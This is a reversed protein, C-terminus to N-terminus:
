AVTLRYDALLLNLHGALTEVHPSDLLSLHHGPVSVIELREGCFADWGRAPDHRDFRPDRMGATQLDRPSYFVVPGDYTAPRYREVARVDLYSTRQHRLIAENADPDILGAAVIAAIVIDTQEDDDLGAMREYPLSVPKGYAAELFAAFRQFRLEIVKAEDLGPPDPLPLITDILALLEVREGAAHLRVATEYALVGGFSWGALLYPGSPQVETLLEVYRGAREEVSLAGDFRDCGWVTLSPDLHDVLQRYVLTDGGGPHFLFLPTPAPGDRLLRLPTDATSEPERLLRAQQEITAAPGFLESVILPHGTRLSLLESARAATSQDGGLATFEQTVGFDERGLVERWVAAVIRETGDRPAVRAIRAPADSSAGSLALTDCLWAVVDTITAGRLLLSPPLTVGFDHQLANRVRVALLSDLGRATLAADEDLGTSDVGLVTAIRAKVRREIQRQADDGDLGAARSWGGGSGEAPGRATEVLGAFLPIRALEAFTDALGGVDIKLVGALPIPYALLAELAETAEVTTIAGVPHPRDGDGGGPSRASWHITSGVLGGARRSEVLADLFAAGAAAGASGPWGILAPASSFGVWWDLEFGTSAASLRTAGAATASWVRRLSEADLRVVARDDAIGAAHAVGCLRAGPMNSATVAREAVGPRSIDGAVLIVESGLRRLDALAEADEPGPARDDNLVLRAAGREALWGAILLGTRGLGGSILYAGDPRVTGAGDPAPAALEPAVMRAVHRQGRRWAVEDEGDTTGLERLLGDLRDSPDLDIWTPRLDAHEAALVRVLGRLGAAGPDARDGDAIAAAGSSVLWVRAGTPTSPRQSLAQVLRAACLVLREGRIVAGEPAEDPPAPGALLVVGDIRRDARLTQEADGDGDGGGDRDVVTAAAGRARLAGALEGALPDSQDAVILWRGSVSAPAPADVPSWARSLLKSRLSTPLTARPVRSLSIEDLTLRIRGDADTLQLAATSHDPATAATVSTRASTVEDIPGLWRALGVSRVVWADDEAPRLSGVLVDLASDLVSRTGGGEAATSAAALLVHMPADLKAAPAPSEPSMELEASLDLGASLHARWRGGAIRSHVTLRGSSRSDRVISTSLTRRDGLALPAHLALDRIQLAGPPSGFAETAASRILELWRGLGITGAVAVAGAGPAPAGPTGPAGPDGPDGPDLSLQWTLRTEDPLEVRAGLLGHAPPAARRARPELWHRRHRWRTRPLDIPRADARAPASVASGNILLAALQAHVHMTEDDSRRGTALIVADPVDCSRANDILAHLLVPHPSVEIFTRHGDAAAAAIAQSFRVPRRINTVWYAADFSPTARPDDLATSYFPTQAASPELGALGDTLAGLIPDVLRCHGAVTSKILKALLGRAEVSGVLERVQAPAGAVAVQGPANFAAIEIEVGDREGLMAALQEPSLELLAMAGTGALTALLRSRLAVVRAGDRASLAGVAVAAALEGLSHGVVAAPTLGNARLLRTLAVQVAFLVPQLREIATIEERRELEECVSFGAESRILGDLELLADAFVPEDRILDLAMGAWQSGQGSFVWVAGTDLGGARAEVLHPASAGAACLRLGDVLSEHERAVVAARASGSMRRALTLEVDALRAGAGDAELWDALRAASDRVRTQDPGALVFRRIPDRERERDPRSTPQAAPQPPQAAPQPPQAAPQPPPAEVVVHANTGGFGFASVGARAPRDTLPWDATRDVVALGLGEFDIHPNGDTVHLSAPIRRRDLSLILKILGVIGAAAELHGLNSKVSGILLPHGGPRGTGLVAGLARAEIPDGLLTGTGHAEVYDVERPDIGASLYAARLLDQQAEVNPATIGNSRGDQNVASGRLVALVRDGDRRADALRKLVVVGAGEARVIGDATAAFPQCRGIASIVGMQHFAATVEPGLLLNAGGAIVLNSEGTRLSQMALHVAVLSSSCATDVAASPGRLDLAYSLRNAAISLAGGTGSWADVGSIASLSRQGYESASVGVFVGTPSGRLSEPSIGAHELAEWGVELLMRQQPDMRRAELPSIGFFEADFGAIDRLFGGLRTTQETVERDAATDPELWRKPPVEGIADAGRELLRWFDEPGAVDGPLRCGLGVVAVANADAEADLAVALPAAPPSAPRRTPTALLASALQRITPHDWVLTSPLTRDLLDELRGALEVADRSSLGYDVLPRDLEVRDPPFGCRDAVVAVLWRELGPISIADGTM